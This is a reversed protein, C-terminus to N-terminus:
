RDRPPDVGEVSAEGGPTAPSLDLACSSGALFWGWAEALQGGAVRFIRVHGHSTACPKAGATPLLHVAVLDEEAVLFEVDGDAANQEADLRLRSMFAARDAPARNDAPDHQVFGPALLAEVARWDRRVVAEQLARVVAKNRELIGAQAALETM